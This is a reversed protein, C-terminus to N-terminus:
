FSQILLQLQTREIEVVQNWVYGNKEWYNKTESLGCLNLNSSLLHTFSFITKILLCIKSFNLSSPKDTKRFVCCLVYNRSIVLKLWTQFLLYFIETLMYKLWKIKNKMDSKFFSNNNLVQWVKHESFCCLLYKTLVISFIHCM